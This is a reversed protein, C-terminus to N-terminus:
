HLTWRQLIRYESLRLRSHILVFDKVTFRIPEIPQESVTKSSYLLTLHPTFTGRIGPLGNRMLCAGLITHLRTLGEGEGILVLPKRGPQGGEFSKASRFTIEFPPISVATGARKAAFLVSSRLRKHDGLHHLSIHFRSSGILSKRTLRHDNIMGTRCADVVGQMDSDLLIGLFLREQLVPRKPRNQWNDGLNLEGQM